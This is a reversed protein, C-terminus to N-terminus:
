NSASQRGSMIAAAVAAAIQKKELSQSPLRDLLHPEREGIRKMDDALTTELDLFQTGLNGKAFSENEMVARHFPINSKIGAIGYEYLARRMRAIAENRDRGWVILKSILSDYFPPITSADCVGSDVRIGAGGPALHRTIKGPTPVFDNFPDEANIRCEIASGRLEVNEQRVSLSLGSAIRIQEQVIDIGSVMETVPHEVQIRANVELFYFQSESFLFEITGAGEYGVCRAADAAVKGMRARLEPNLATSPSEEILKQHRRQISCEREGLHIISGLTDALIQFEIHRPNALYKEIYVDALGFSAGAVARAQELANSLAEEDAVVIMGIGGGGGSPKLIIPYGIKKAIQRAQEYDGICENMGPVVPIGAKQMERRAAVKDGVLHLVRSSPGIFRIGERECASAFAPNEALFGYGPHIAGCGSQQATEIIKPINLYSQSAAAPGIPYRENAYRTFFANKDAESFVAVSRIDMERCARMIRVAIEGRNAVLIKDIM